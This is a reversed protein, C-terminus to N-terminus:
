HGEPWARYESAHVLSTALIARPIAPHSAVGPQRAPPQHHRHTSRSSSFCNELVGVLSPTPPHRSSSQSRYGNRQPRALPLPPLTKGRPPLTSPPLRDSSRNRRIIDGQTRTTKASEGTAEDNQCTKARLRPPNGSSKQLSKRTKRGVSGGLTFRLQM